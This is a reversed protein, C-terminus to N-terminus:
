QTPSQITKTIEPELNRMVDDDGARTKIRKGESDVVYWGKNEMCEYYYRTWEDLNRETGHGAAITMPTASDAYLKCESIDTQYEPSGLTKKDHKLYIKNECAVIGALGGMIGLTLVVQGIQKYMWM